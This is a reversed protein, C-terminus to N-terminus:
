MDAPMRRAASRLIVLVLIAGVATAAGQMRPKTDPAVAAQRAKIMAQNTVPHAM